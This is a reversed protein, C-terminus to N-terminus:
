KAEPNNSQGPAINVALWLGAAYLPILSHRAPALGTPLSM